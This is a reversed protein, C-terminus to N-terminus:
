NSVRTNYFGPYVVIVSKVLKKLLFTSNKKWFYKNISYLPPSPLIWSNVTRLVLLVKAGDLTSVVWWNFAIKQKKLVLFPVEKKVQTKAGNRIKQFQRTM